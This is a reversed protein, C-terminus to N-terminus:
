INQLATDKSPSVEIWPSAADSEHIRCNDATGTRRRCVPNALGFVPKTLLPERAAFLRCVWQDREICRTTAAGDSPKTRNLWWCRRAWDGHGCHCTPLIEM